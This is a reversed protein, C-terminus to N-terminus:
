KQIFYEWKYGYAKNRRGQCCDVIHAHGYGLERKIDALSSWTKIYIGDLTYQNVSTHHPNSGGIFRGKLTKSIKQRTELSRPKNYTWHREKSMCCGCDGGEGLNYGYRFDTTQYVKILKREEKCAEDKTLDAFLINHKINEWGYKKIPKYVMQGMYGSGRKWRKEPNQSTIGIYRKNNPFILEYVSYNM